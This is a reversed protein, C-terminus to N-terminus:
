RLRFVVPVTFVFADTKIEEPIAPYPSAKEVASRAARNLTEHESTEMYEVNTVQGDRALTVTVRVTGEQNRRLAMQPYKVYTGTWKTIKSIYLQEALLSAATVEEEGDDDTLISDSFLDEESVLGPGMSPRPKPPTAVAVPESPRPTEKPRAAPTPASPEPTSPPAAAVDPGTAPPTVTPAPPATATPATPAPVPQAPRSAIETSAGELAARIATIRERSPQILTHRGRLPEASEPGSLLADKFTSSLPVPGIWTRVLLDFFAPDSITGLQIGNITVVLGTDVKRDFRLVDGARLNVRLINNFDAMNQAQATLEAQGSNIAIGEIWMRKFRRSFIRDEIIKLEMAKNQNSLIFERADRAPKDAYIAAIFQEQGLETHIAMGNLQLANAMPMFTVLGLWLGLKILVASTLKM